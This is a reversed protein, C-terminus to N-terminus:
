KTYLYVIYPLNRPVKPDLPKIGMADINARSKISTAYLHINTIHSGVTDLHKNDSMDYEKLMLYPISGNLLHMCADM